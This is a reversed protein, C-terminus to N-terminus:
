KYNYSLGNASQFKPEYLTLKFYFLVNLVSTFYNWEM